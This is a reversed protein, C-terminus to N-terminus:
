NKGYVCVMGDLDLRVLRLGRCQVTVIPKEAQAHAFGAEVALAAEIKKAVERRRMHDLAIQIRAEQEAAMRQHMWRWLRTIISM